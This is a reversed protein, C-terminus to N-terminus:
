YFIVTLGFHAVLAEAADSFIHLFTSITALEIKSAFFNALPLFQRMQKNTMKLKGFISNIEDLRLWEPKGCSRLM